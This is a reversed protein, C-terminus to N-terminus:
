NGYTSTLVISIALSNSERPKCVNIHGVKDIRTTAEDPLFNDQIVVREDSAFVVKTALLPAIPDKQLSEQTDSRLRNLIPSGVEVDRIVQAYLKYFGLVLRLPFFPFLAEQILNPLHAGMDAPAFFITRTSPLWPAKQRYAKLLAKRCLVAGLSHAVLVIRNYQFDEPRHGEAPITPNILLSSPKTGLWSLVDYFRDANTWIQRNQSEYGFYLFDTDRVEQYYPLTNTDTFLFYRFLDWTRTAHGGFGHVFVIITGNPTFSWHVESNCDPFPLELRRGLFHYQISPRISGKDM